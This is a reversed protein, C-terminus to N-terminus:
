SCSVQIRSLVVHPCHRRAPMDAVNGMMRDQVSRDFTLLMSGQLFLCSFLSTMQVQLFLCSFLGTM